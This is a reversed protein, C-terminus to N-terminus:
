EEIEFVWNRGEELDSWVRADSEVVTIDAEASGAPAGREGCRFWAEFKGAPMPPIVASMSVTENTEPSSFAVQAFSSHIESTTSKYSLSVSWSNSGRGCKARAPDYTIMLSKGAKLPGYYVQSTFTEKNAPDVTFFIIPMPARREDSISEVKAAPELSQLESADQTSPIPSAFTITPTIFQLALALLLTVSTRSM